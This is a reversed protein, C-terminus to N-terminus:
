LLVEMTPQHSPQRLHVALTVKRSNSPSVFNIIIAISKQPSATWCVLALKVMLSFADESTGSSRFTRLKKRGKRGLKVYSYGVNQTCSRNDMDGLEAGPNFNVTTNGTHSGPVTIQSVISM